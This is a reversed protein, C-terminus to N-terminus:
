DHDVEMDVDKFKIPGEPNFCLLPALMNEIAYVLKEEDEEKMGESHGTIELATHILEHFITSFLKRPNKTHAAKSINMQHKYKVMEGSYHENDDDVLQEKYDIKIPYGGVMFKVPAQM